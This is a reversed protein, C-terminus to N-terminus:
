PCSNIAMAVPSLNKKFLNDSDAQKKKKKKKM